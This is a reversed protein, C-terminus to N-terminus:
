NMEAYLAQNAVIPNLFGNADVRMRGEVCVPVRGSDFPVFNACIKRVKSVDFNEPLQLVYWGASSRKVHGSDMVAAPYLNNNKADLIGFAIRLGGEAFAAVKPGDALAPATLTACIAAVLFSTKKM